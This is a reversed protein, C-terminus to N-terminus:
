ASKGSALVVMPEWACQLCSWYLGYQDTRLWLDGHCKSCSKLKLKFM